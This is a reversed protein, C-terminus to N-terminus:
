VKNLSQRLVDPDLKSANGISNIMHSTFYLQLRDTFGDLVAGIFGFFMLLMDVGDAQMFISRVSGNVRETKGQKQSEELVM